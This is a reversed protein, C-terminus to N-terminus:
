RKHYINGNRFNGKCNLELMINYIWNDIDADKITLDAYRKSPDVFEKYMTEVSSYYQKKVSEPTRSREEVDRKM